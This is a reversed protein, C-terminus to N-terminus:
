IRILKNNASDHWIVNLYEVEKFPIGRNLIFKYLDREISVRRFLMWKISVKKVYSELMDRELAILGTMIQVLLFPFTRYKKAQVREVRFYNGPNNVFREFFVFNELKQRPEFSIVYKYQKGIISLVKKWQIVLGAGKNKKGAENDFFYCRTLNPIQNLANNIKPDLISPNELTSDTLFFDFCGPFKKDLEVVQKFGETYQSIRLRSNDDGRTTTVFATPLIIATKM